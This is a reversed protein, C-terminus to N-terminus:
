IYVKSYEAPSWFKHSKRRFRVYTFIQVVFINYKSTERCFSSSSSFCFCSSFSSLPSDDDDDGDNYDDDDDGIIRIMSESNKGPISPSSSSSPATVPLSVSTGLMALDDDNNDDDDDDKITMMEMM